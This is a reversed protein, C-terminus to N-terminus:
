HLHLTLVLLCALAAVIVWVALAGIALGVGLRFGDAYSFKKPAKPVGKVADALFNDKRAPM